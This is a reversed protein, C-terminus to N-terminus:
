LAHLFAHLDSVPAVLRAHLAVQLAVNLFAFAVHLAAVAGV